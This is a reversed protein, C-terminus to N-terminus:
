SSMITFWFFFFPEHKKTKFCGVRFNHMSRNPNWRRFCFPNKEVAFQPLQDFSGLKWFLLFFFVFLMVKVKRKM